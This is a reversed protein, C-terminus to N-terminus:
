LRGSIVSSQSDVSNEEPMIKDKIVQCNSTDESKIETEEKKINKAVIEHSISEYDTPTSVHAFNEDNFTNVKPREVGLYKYLVEEIAPM